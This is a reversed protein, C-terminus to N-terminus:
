VGTETRNYRRSYERDGITLTVHGEDADSKLTASTGGLVGTVARLLSTRNTANRGTLLNVGSQFEIACSDIGGMNEVALEVPVEVHTNQVTRNSHEM